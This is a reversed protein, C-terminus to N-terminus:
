SSKIYPRMEDRLKSLITYIPFETSDSDGGAGTMKLSLLNRYIDKFCVLQKGAANGKELKVLNALLSFVNEDMSKSLTKMKEDWEDETQPIGSAQTGPFLSRPSFANRTDICCLLAKILCDAESSVSSYLKSLDQCLIVFTPENGIYHNFFYGHALRFHRFAKELKERTKGENIQSTWVKSYFIALQYNAAAIQHQNGLQEYITIAKEIPDIINREEGPKLRLFTPHVLNSGLIRQRRTVGLILYTAALEESVTDWTKTDTERQDLDVHALQLQNIAGELCLESNRDKSFHKYNHARSPPLAVAANVRLKSCQCLNCRILAINRKDKCMQFHSLGQVFWSEASLLLLPAYPSTSDETPPLTTRTNSLVILLKKVETLLIKGVENCADGSLRFLSDKIPVQASACSQQIIVFIRIARAFCHTSAVLVRREERKIQKQKDMYKKAVAIADPSINGIDM